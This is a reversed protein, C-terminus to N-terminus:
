KKVAKCDVEIDTYQNNLMIGVIDKKTKNTEFLVNGNHFKLLATCNVENIGLTEVNHKECGLLLLAFFLISKKM